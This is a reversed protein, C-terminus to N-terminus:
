APRAGVAHDALRGEVFRVPRFATLRQDLEGRILEAAVVRGWLPGLTVGSHSVAIYFGEIGPVAGVIPLRDKPMPRVGVRM